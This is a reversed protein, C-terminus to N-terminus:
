WGRYEREDCDGPGPVICATPSTPSPVDDSDVRDSGCALEKRLREVFLARESNSFVREITPYLIREEKTNHAPLVQHLFTLGEKFIETDLQALGDRMTRVAALIERHESRMVLTPGGGLGTRMEFLPFLLEEEIRIHRSIGFVFEALAKHAEELQNAEVERCVAALIGDLRNHDSSLCESITSFGLAVATSASM